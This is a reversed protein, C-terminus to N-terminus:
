ISHKNLYVSNLLQRTNADLTMNQGEWPLTTQELAKKICTSNPESHCQNIASALYFANVFGEFHVRNVNDLKAKTAAVQFAKCLMWDCSFPEPMVETILVKAQQPIKQFLVQSSVFSVSSYIPHHNLGDLQNILTIFPEYTGVFLVGDVKKEYFSIAAHNIDTTNRKFRALEVPKINYQELVENYYKEVAIGFADAQILLGIRKLKKELLLYDLQAKVEQKYSARVNFINTEKKDRIFDAGTFPTVYPINHKNITSLVKMSTPTGVYNFLVAAHSNILQKTNFLANTPEYGDDLSIFEVPTKNLTTKGLESNFFLEAGLNLDQGLRATPGKQANSTGIKISTAASWASPAQLSSILLLLIIYFIRNV